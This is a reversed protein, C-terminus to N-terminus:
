RHSPILMSLTMPEISNLRVWVQSPPLAAEGPIHGCHTSFIALLQPMSHTSFVSQLTYYIRSSSSNAWNVSNSSIHVCKSSSKSTSYRPQFVFHAARRGPLRSIETDATQIEFILNHFHFSMTCQNSLSRESQPNNAVSM